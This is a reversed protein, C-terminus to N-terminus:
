VRSKMMLPTISKEENSPHDLSAKLLISYYLPANKLHGM